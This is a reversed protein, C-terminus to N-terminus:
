DTGFHLKIAELLTMVQAKETLIGTRFLQESDKRLEPYDDLLYINQEFYREFYARLGANTKLWYQFPNMSRLDGRRLLIVRAAWLYRKFMAVLRSDTLKAKSGTWSYKAFNRHKALIWEFYIGEKYRMAPPISFCYECFDVDLFPSGTETFQHTTWNGNLAGNFARNYLKFMDETEYRKIIDSAVPLIKNALKTSYTGLLPKPPQHSPKSLFSGMIADGIMGTHLMGFHDFNITEVCSLLHASGSYLVLGGNAVVADEITNTLYNGGDLAYFLFGENIDSAIQRATREDFYGSQCLNINLIDNFGLEKASMVSMRSDLGGSLTAIHRYGYELDKGYELKVANQFLTELTDIIKTHSDTTQTSNNFSRYENISMKGKEVKIYNGPRLKKVQKVLTYEELMFGFTLLCYAGIEDLSYRINLKRLVQTVLHLESACIFINDDYFYFLPEASTHNTFIIWKDEPKDYLVGSFEGRFSNCFGDGQQQYMKKVTHFYDVQMSNNQLKKFNLIAGEIVVLIEQDDQFIKDQLFKPNTFRELTAGPYEVKNQVCYGLSRHETQFPPLNKNKSLAVLFGSMNEREVFDTVQFKYPLL